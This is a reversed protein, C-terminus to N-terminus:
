VGGVLLVVFLTVAIAAVGAFGGVIESIKMKGTRWKQMAAASQATLKCKKSTAATRTTLTHM